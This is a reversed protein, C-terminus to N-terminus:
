SCGNSGANRGNPKAMQGFSQVAEKVEMDGNEVAKLVEVIQALADDIMPNGTSPVGGKKGGSAGELQKLLEELDKDNDSM